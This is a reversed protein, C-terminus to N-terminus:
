VPRCRTAHRRGAGQCDNRRSSKRGPSASTYCISAGETWMETSPPTPQEPRYDPHHQRIISNYAQYTYTLNFVSETGYPLLYFTALLKM